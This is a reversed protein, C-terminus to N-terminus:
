CGRFAQTSGAVTQDDAAVTTAQPKNKRKEGEEPFKSSKV